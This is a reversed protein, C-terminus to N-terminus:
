NGVINGNVLAPKKTFLMPLSIIPGLKPHMECVAHLDADKAAAEFEIDVQFLRSGIRGSKVVTATFGEDFVAESAKIVLGPVKPLKETAAFICLAANRGDDARVSNLTLLSLSLGLAAILKQM